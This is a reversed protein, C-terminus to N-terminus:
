GAQNAYAQHIVEVARLGDRGTVRPAEQGRVVSAVHRLERVFRSEGSVSVSTWDPDKELRFRNTGTNYDIELAGFEGYLEVMNASGPTMWSAEIVGLAGAEGKLLMVSSDELGRAQVDPQFAQLACASSAVEGVLYRFLDVSHISTDLLVGRGAVEPRTFWTNEVGVLRGGFRNRFMRVKGLTGAAILERAWEIPPHFRHCFATMLLVGQREAAEVMERAEEPTRALPKESLVPIGRQIARVAVAAHLNPPTCIDVLDLEENDMLESFDSYAQEAADEARARDVDCAAVVRAGVVEKWSRLHTRGIGGCGVLGIRLESM